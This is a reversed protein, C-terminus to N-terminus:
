DRIITRAVIVTFLATLAAGIFSELAALIRWAGTAHFDGYGLTTFTVISFYLSSIFSPETEQGQYLLVNHHTYFIACIVIIVFAWLVIRYYSTGYKCLLDGFIYNLIRKPSHKKAIKRKAVMELYHYHDSKDHLSSNKYMEKIQKYEISAFHYNGSKESKLEKGFTTKEDVITNDLVVDKIDADTFNCNILKAARLDIAQCNSEQFNCENLSANKFEAHDLEAQEFSCNYIKADQFVSSKLSAGEFHINSLVAINENYGEDDEINIRFDFGSLPAGRLDICDQVEDDNIGPFHHVEKRFLVPSLYCKTEKIQNLIKKGHPTTWRHRLQEIKEKTYHM